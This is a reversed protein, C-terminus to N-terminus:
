QEMCLEFQKKQAPTLATQPSTVDAFMQDSCKKFPEGALPYNYTSITPPHSNNYVLWGFMLNATFFMMWYVFTM